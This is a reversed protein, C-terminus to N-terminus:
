RSGLVDLGIGGDDLLPDHGDGVLLLLFTTGQELPGQEPGKHRQGTNITKLLCGGYVDGSRKLHESWLRM